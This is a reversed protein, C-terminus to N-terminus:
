PIVVTTPSLVLLPPSIEYFSASSYKYDEPYESLKWKDQLPSNHLYDLKQRFGESGYLYGRTPLYSLLSVSIKNCGRQLRLGM